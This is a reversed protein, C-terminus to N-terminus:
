VPVWFCQCNAHAPIDPLNDEIYFIEGHMSECYDCTTHCLVSCWTIKGKYDMVKFATLQALNFIRSEETMMLRKSQYESYQFVRDIENTLSQYDRGEKIGTSILHYLKTVLEQKNRHIRNGFTDEKFKQYVHEDILDPNLSLLLRGELLVGHKIYADEYIEKLLKELMEKELAAMAGVKEMLLKEVQVMFSERQYRNLILKGDVSYHHYFELLMLLLLRLLKRHERKIKKEKEEARTIMEQKIGIIEDQRSM